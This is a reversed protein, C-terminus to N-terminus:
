VVGLLKRFQQNVKTFKVLRYVFKLKVIERNDFIFIMNEHDAEYSSLMM